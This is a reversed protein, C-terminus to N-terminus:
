KQKDYQKVAAKLTMIIYTALDELDNPDDLNFDEPLTTSYDRVIDIFADYVPGEIDLLELILDTLDFEKEVIANYKYKMIM